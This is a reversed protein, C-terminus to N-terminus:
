HHLSDLDEALLALLQDYEAMVQQRNELDKGLQEVENKLDDTLAPIFREGENKMTTLMSATNRDIEASMQEVLIGVVRAQEQRLRAINDNEVTASTFQQRVENIYQDMDMTIAPVTLRSLANELPLLVANPDFGDASFDFMERILQKIEQRLRNIDVARGLAAIVQKETELAFTELKDVAQQVNAYTYNITRYQTEYVTRTSGWSFPNYWKSASVTRAVEYAEQKTGSQTEVRKADLAMARLDLLLQQMQQQLAQQQQSFIQQIRVEGTKIRQIITAQQKALADLDGDVLQKRRHNIDTEIQQLCHKMGLRSGKVIDAMRRDLIATKNGRVEEMRQHVKNFNALQMLLQPSFEFGPYMSNLQKLSHAEEESLDVGKIALDYCRSSIFTPPLAKQLAAFIYGEDDVSNERNAQGQQCVREVNQQALNNLKQTIGRLALTISPYNHYEDLLASDFVSGILLIERIGKHPINQALLAMDHMDMFQSCYSLFFVVDCQGIFEQTRRGRSVIPDNMGPTDVVEIGDLGPVNLKLETSKVIPTFRGNAGVFDTLKEILNQNSDTGDIRHVTGLYEAVRIGSQEVMAVLECCAKEEESPRPAVPPRNRQGRASVQGARFEGLSQQYARDNEEVRAATQEVTQWEAITYFEVSAEPQESFSIRTLAATMPTAAKPLIDQGNFLLSNLFSSKGRKIQGIIGIRLLRGEQQANAIDKQFSEALQQLSALQNVNITQGFAKYRDAITLFQTNLTQTHNTTNM